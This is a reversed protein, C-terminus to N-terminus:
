EKGSQIIINGNVQLNMIRQIVDEASEAEDKEKGLKGTVQLQLKAAAIKDAGRGNDLQDEIADITKKYLTRMRGDLYAELDKLYARGIDTSALMTVFEPTCKCLAGIEVRKMGQAHLSLIQKHKPTLRKPNWKKVEEAAPFPARDIVAPMNRKQLEAAAEEAPIDSLFSVLKAATENNSM